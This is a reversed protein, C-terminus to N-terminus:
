QKIFKVVESKNQNVFRAFYLGPPLKAVNINVQNLNSITYNGVIRGSADYINITANDIRSNLQINLMDNVPNPWINFKSEIIEPGIDTTGTVPVSFARRIIGSYQSDKSKDSVEFLEIEMMFTSRCSDTGSELTVMYVGIEPYVHYPNQETSTEGDGFDWNWSDAGPLSLDYFQVAVATSDFEPYFFAQCDGPIGGWDEIYIMEQFTSTCNETFITLSVLYEGDEAYTHLPFQESSEEGNGFDWNWALIENTGTSDSGGWSLDIFQVTMYDDYNYEPYFMAQCEDPYWTNDGVWIFFSITSSCIDGSEISLTVEYEGEEDYTHIPNQESSTNGDGFEWSWSSIGFEAFSMDEFYVTKTNISDTIFWFDAFCRDMITDSYIYVMDQFSMLGCNDNNAELTVLYEGEEAYTHLPYMESSVAGDGFDWTFETVSTSDALIPYFNIDNPSMPESFWFFYIDCEDNIPSTCIVFDVINDVDPEAFLVEVYYENCAYAFTEVIAFASDEESNFEFSYNGNEDTYTVYFMSSDIPGDNLRLLVEQNAVADNNEDSINGIINFDNGFLNGGSLLLSLLLISSILINKM